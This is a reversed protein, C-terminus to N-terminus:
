SSEQLKSVSLFHLFVHELPSLTSFSIERSSSHPNKQLNEGGKRLSEASQRQVCVANDQHSNEVPATEGAEVTESAQHHNPDYSVGKTLCSFVIRSLKNAVAVAIVNFCKGANKLREIFQYIRDQPISKNQKCLKAHNMLLSRAGQILMTRKYRDGQKTIGGLKIIGGTTSQKPVIGLSAAFDKPSDYNEVPSISLISANIPGIGPISMLLQAKESNKNSARIEADLAKERELLHMIEECQRKMERYVDESIAKQELAHDVFEHCQGAFKSKGCKVIYNFEYLSSILSNSKQIREQIINQRSKHFFSIIQEEKTKPRVHMLEPDCAAKCIAISDNIDNKQRTKAYAKVDKPKLVIVKHGLEQLEQAVCHAGGCAEFSFTQPEPFLKFLTEMLVKRRVMRKLSIKGEHNMAAIHIKEKALDIGIAKYENM